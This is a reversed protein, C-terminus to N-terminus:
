SSCGLYEFRETRFGCQFYASIAIYTLLNQINDIHCKISLHCVMETNALTSENPGVELRRAKIDRKSLGKHM